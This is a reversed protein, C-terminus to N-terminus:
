RRRAEEEKASPGSLVLALLAVALAGGVYPIARHQLWHGVGGTTAWVGAGATLVCLGAVLQRRLLACAAAAVAVFAVAGAVLEGDDVLPLRLTWAAGAAALCAVFAVAAASARMAM